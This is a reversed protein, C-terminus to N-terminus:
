FKLMCTLLFYMDVYLLICTLMCELDFM